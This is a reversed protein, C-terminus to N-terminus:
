FQVYVLLMFCNTGSVKNSEIPPPLLLAENNPSDPPKPDCIPPRLLPKPEPLLLGLFFPLQLENEEEDEYDSDDFAVFEEPEPSPSKRRFDSVTSM